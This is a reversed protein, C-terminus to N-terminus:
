WARCARSASVRCTSRATRPSRRPVELGVQHWVSPLAAGLHPDNALLPMGSETLDGSVVWSNSGIGEGADGVLASVAEIVGDVEIGSRDVGDAAHGSDAGSGAASAPQVAALTPVIM